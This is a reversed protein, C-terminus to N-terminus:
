PYLNNLPEQNKKAVAKKLTTLVELVNEAPVSAQKNSYIAADIQNAFQTFESSNFKRALADLTLIQQGGWFTEGWSLLAQRIAVYDTTALAVKLRKWAEKEEQILQNDFYEDVEKKDALLRKTHWYLALLVLNFALSFILLGYIWTPIKATAPQATESLKSLDTNMPITLNDTTGQIPATNPPNIAVGTVTLTSEPLSATKFIQEQTDWWHLQIAPLTFKGPQNAVLATTEIRSGTVGEAGKQDDNQAQDQYANLGQINLTPLPPLQGASLGDGKITLTRTIPEGVKLNDPSSSWHEEIHIDKAPLWPQAKPDNPIPKVKVHQEDTRLRLLSGRNTSFIDMYDRTNAAVEVQYLVSPIVLDGSTQPFVAFTSEHITLQRGNKIKRYSKEDVKITLADKVELPEVNGGNLEVYSTLRLKVILQEQIFAEPKDVQIEVQVSDQSKQSKGGVTIEIADSIAGNINFSPILATGIKKPALAIVWQTYSEARGNNISMYSGSQTNLVDFDKRLPSYDPEANIQEDYRLTLVFTEDLGLVNKDVSATLNAAFTQGSIVLGLWFALIAWYHSIRANRYLFTNMTM